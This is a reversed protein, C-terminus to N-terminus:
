RGREEASPNPVPRPKCQETCVRDYTELCAKCGAGDDGACADRCAERMCERYCQGPSRGVLVALLLLVRATM